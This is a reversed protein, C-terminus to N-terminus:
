HSDSRTYSIAAMDMLTEGHILTPDFKMDRQNSLQVTYYNGSKLDWCLLYHIHCGNILFLIMGRSFFVLIILAYFPSPYIPRSWEDALYLSYTRRWKEDSGVAVWINILYNNLLDEEHCSAMWCCLKGEIDFVGFNTRCGVVDPPFEMCSFAEELCDFVLIANEQSRKKCMWYLCDNVLVSKGWYVCVDSVKTANIQRWSDMAGGLSIVETHWKVFACVKLLRYQGTWRHYYLKCEWTGYSFIDGSHSPIDIRLGTLPNLVYMGSARSPPFDASPYRFRSWGLKKKKFCILGDCSSVPYYAKHHFKREANCVTFLDNQPISFSDMPKKRPLNRPIFHFILSKSIRRTHALIFIPDTSISLWVTSVCRFRAVSKAPLRLIIEIVLDHPLYLRRSHSRVCKFKEPMEAGM